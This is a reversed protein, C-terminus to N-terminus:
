EDDKGPPFRSGLVGLTATLEPIDRQIIDWVIEPDVRFYEHVVKHRLGVIAPWPLNSFQARRPESILRAAEGIITLWHCVAAQITEDELFEDRSINATKEAIKRAALLMDVLRCDDPSM